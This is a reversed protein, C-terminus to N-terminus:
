KGRGDNQEKRIEYGIKENYYLKGTSKENELPMCSCDLLEGTADVYAVRVPHTNEDGIWLYEQLFSVSVADGAPAISERVKIMRGLLQRTVALREERSASAGCLKIPEGCVPYIMGKGGHQEKKLLLVQVQTDNENYRTGFHEDDLTYGAEAKASLALKELKEKKRQVEQKLEAAAGTEERDAYVSELIGRIDDPIRIVRKEKLVEASRYLWYAEYPLFKRASNKLKEADELEEAFLLIAKCEAGAPRTREHRWLRGIRQFIFDAPAMRTILFDADVDVSQELVQSAVLIRGCKKREAGGRKGLIEAWYEERAKRVDGPFRSHIIGVEIGAACQCFLRYIRQVEAVTNEIWLVQEGNEARALAEQLVSLEDKRLELEVAASEKQAVPIVSLRGHDNLLIRPYSRDMLQAEPIQAFECCAKTTLTASLLIVTCGWERLNHIFTQLLSATYADYSHIEDIIVVKGTLAFARLASHKARIVSLLAQDLTGAGFSALLARKKSQFWSDCREGGAETPMRLDWQLWSDGHILISQKGPASLVKALFANLREYIKESTLQTPLAFYIGDAKKQELLAYALGLAAETKGSGMGSEVVYIGGPTIHELLAKQLSNECFEFIESFDLDPLIEQPVLGANLIVERIEADTPETGYPIDMSSSLWDSLIVAGLLVNELEKMKEGSYSEPLNLEAKLRDLLEERAAQWETGGLEEKELKDGASLVNLVGHHAGAIKAFQAGYKQLIIRSNLAHGGKSEQLKNDWPVSLNIASHIKQQFAPTMKGIDHYATLGEGEPLFYKGRVHEHWLDRLARFIRCTVRLHTAISCGREGNLTKALCEEPPILPYNCKQIFFDSMLNMM